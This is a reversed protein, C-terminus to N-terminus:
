RLQQTDTTRPNYRSPDFLTTTPVTVPKATNLPALDQVDNGDPGRVSDITNNQAIDSPIVDSNRTTFQKQGYVFYILFAFFLVVFILAFLIFIYRADSSAPRNQPVM